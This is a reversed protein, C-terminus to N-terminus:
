IPRVCRARNHGTGGCRGCKNQTTKAKKTPPIEGASPIRDERPRGSPRRTRPPYITLDAIDPPISHNGEPAEPLIVGAYTDIWHQTKYCDGVLQNYPLGITDAAMLAHGCPIKLKQFVQCSCVKTDLHVTNGHGYIGGCTTLEKAFIRWECRPDHCSLVFSERSTRTQRFHFQEKIAYIALGIQCDQKSVYMKGVYPEDDDIDLNPVDDAEYLTDDFLPPIDFEEDSIESLPRTERHPPTPPPTQAPRSMPRPASTYSTSRQVPPCSRTHVPPCNQLPVYNASTGAEPKCYPPLEGSVLVTHDFADGTTCEITIPKTKPVYIGAMLEAADSGGLHNNILPAWFDQDYGRPRVEDAIDAPISSDSGTEDDDDTVWSEPINDPDEKFMKELLDDDAFLTEDILSFRQSKSSGAHQGRSFGQHELGSAACAATHPPNSPAPAPSYCPSQVLPCSRTHVPPNSLPQVPSYSPPQVPPCGQSLDLEEDNFLSFGPIQSAATTPQRSVSSSSTSINTKIPQNPTIFPLNNEVAPPDHQYRSKTNFTVFLNIGKTAQFHQYFFSVAGDNTLMVPPTTLGTALEKSNPPWYSLVVTRITDSNDFFEKFVNSLLETLSIGSHLPIIRTMHEKDISFNWLNDASSKWEGAIVMCHEGM